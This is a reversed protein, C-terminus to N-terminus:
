ATIVHRLREKEKNNARYKACALRANEKKKEKNKADERAGLKVVVDTIGPNETTPEMTSM